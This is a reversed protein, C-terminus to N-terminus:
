GLPLVRPLPADLAKERLGTEFGARTKWASAIAEADYGVGMALRCVDAGTITGCESLVTLVALALDLARGEQTSRVAVDRAILAVLEEFKPDFMEDEL